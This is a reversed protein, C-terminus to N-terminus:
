GVPSFQNSLVGAARWAAIVHICRSLRTNLQAANPDVDLGTLAAGTLDLDDGANLVWRYDLPNQRMQLAIRGGDLRSQKWLITPWRLCAEEISEM